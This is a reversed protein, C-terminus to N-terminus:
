MSADGHILIPLFRERFVPPAPDDVVENAARAHRSLPQGTRSPQIPPMRIVLDIQGDKPTTAAMHYKVDGTLGDWTTFAAKPDVILVFIQSYPKPVCPCRELTWSIGNGGSPV